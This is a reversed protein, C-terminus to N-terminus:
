REIALQNFHAKGSACWTPLFGPADMPTHEDSAPVLQDTAPYAAVGSANVLCSLGREAVQRAIAATPLLRSDRLQQRRRETWRGADIADGALNIVAECSSLEEGQWQDWDTPTAAYELWTQDSPVSAVVSLECRGVQKRWPRCCPSASRAPVVLSAVRRSM